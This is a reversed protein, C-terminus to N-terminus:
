MTRDLHALFKDASMFGVVRAGDIEVGENDYFIIAPPGFIGYRRLLEKDESNNATVDAQLLVAQNMRAAVQANTFTFAEMEKCSVCWDAYFDLIVPKSQSRASSLAAELDPISRVRHFTVHQTSSQGGADSGDTTLGQLPRLLTGAGTGVGILLLTGYVVSVYGIGKGVKQLNGGPQGDFVGLFMGIMILLIASLSMTVWSPVVRDIMWIALGLLMFGFVAKIKDMWPGAAPLYKGFSTGIILIPLGMGMSLAFLAAGGLVADGTQGIYILAGVLPATVCPGVILASLFGMSAVGLYSGSKQQNSVTMLRNQIFAPMQLEYLGFMSASLIVFLLAFAALVYPHQLTAQINEGTLGIIVGAITYTLAMALVYVLSLRFAKGTGIEDGRGVIISSLIPIMPLVCPTFTLLLGLGFFTLITTITKGSGLSAALRDQEAVQVTATTNGNELTVSTNSGGTGNTGVASAAVMSAPIEAVSIEKYQPPYCVGIDACGQYGIKLTVNRVPEINNFSLQARAQGRHVEVEGFFEDTKLKGESIEVNAIGINSPNLVQFNFKPDYLYHGEAILWSLPLKGDSVPDVLLTFAREPDLVEDGSKDIRMSDFLSKGSTAGTIPSNNSSHNQPSLVTNSGSMDILVPDSSGRSTQTPAPLPSLTGGNLQPAGATSTAPVEVVFDETMPPYCVGADACGQSVVTVTARTATDAAIDANFAVRNRFTEVEGFFEDQKRVGHPLNLAGIDAHDSEVRFKDRYVFYGDEIDQTVEIKGDVVAVSTRFAEEPALLEDSGTGGLLSLAAASGAFLVGSLVIFRSLCRQLM